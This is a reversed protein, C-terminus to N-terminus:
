PPAWQWLPEESSHLELNHLQIGSFHLKAGGYTKLVYTYIAPIVTFYVHFM